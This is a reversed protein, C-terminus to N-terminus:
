KCDKERNKIPLIIGGHANHTPKLNLDIRDFSRTDLIEM